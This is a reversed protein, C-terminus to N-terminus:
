VHAMNAFMGSFKSLVNRYYNAVIEFGAFLICRKIFTSFPMQLIAVTQFTCCWWEKSVNRYSDKVLALISQIWKIFNLKFFPSHGDALVVAM